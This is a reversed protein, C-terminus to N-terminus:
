KYLSISYPSINTHYTNSMNHLRPHFSRMLNLKLVPYTPEWRRRAHSCYLAYKPAPNEVKGFYLFLLKVANKVIIKCLTTCKIQRRSKQKRSFASLNCKIHITRPYIYEVFSNVFPEWFYECFSFGLFLCFFHRRLLGFYM